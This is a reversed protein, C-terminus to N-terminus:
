EAAQRSPIALGEEILIRMLLRPDDSRGEESIRRRWRRAGPRGAFLGLMHRAYRWIPTGDTEVKETVTRVVEEATVSSPAEGFYLQDVESLEMPREYAARGLMVGDLKELHELGERPSAIGGNLILRMDPFREKMREVLGYDLPPVTRNEKPSLGQLWAKRAHVIVTTVGARQVEELFRPLIVEPDQDDIGIRCKATVPLAVAERMAILCDRVLEPEAMLCAGFRGSQVRDSPCGVNMNIEDYGYTAGIRAAKAMKDADSGGLQLATPGGHDYALLRGQDGNLIAEATVMETYLLARRTLQRHFFRCYRDTWDIMPAVSFAHSTTM